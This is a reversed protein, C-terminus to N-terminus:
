APEIVRRASRKNSDAHSAYTPKNYGRNRRSELFSGRDTWQNPVRTAVMGSSSKCSLDYAGPFLVYHACSFWGNVTLQASANDSRM